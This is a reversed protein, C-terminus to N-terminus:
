KNKRRRAAILTIALGTLELVVVAVVDTAPTGATATIALTGIATAAWIGALTIREVTTLMQSAHHDSVEVRFGAGLGARRLMSKLRSTPKVAPVDTEEMEGDPQGTPGADVVPVKM